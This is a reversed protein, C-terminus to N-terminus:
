ESTVARSRASNRGCHPRRYPALVALLRDADGMRVRTSQLVIEGMRDVVVVQVYRTHADFGAVFM